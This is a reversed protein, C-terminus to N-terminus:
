ELAEFSEVLWRDIGDVVSPDDHRIRRPFGYTDHFDIVVEQEPHAEAVSRAKAFLGPVTYEEPDFPEVECEIGMYTERPADMCSASWDVAQGDRVTITHTQYHWTSCIYVVEIRYSNIDQKQWKREAKNVQAVWANCGVLAALTLIGVVLYAMRVWRRM